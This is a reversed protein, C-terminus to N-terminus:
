NQPNVFTALPVEPRRLAHGILRLRIRLLTTTAPTICTRFYLDKNSLRVPFHVGLSYRMLARHSADLNKSMTDTIALAECSYLLVTEVTSKFLQMKAKDSVVGDWVPTLKRAAVWALQRRQQIASRSDAVNCGLFCFDDCSALPVGATTCIATHPIDGIYM